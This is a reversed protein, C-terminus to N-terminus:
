GELLKELEKVESTSLKRVVVTSFLEVGSETSRVESVITKLRKRIASVRRTMDAEVGDGSYTKSPNINLGKEGLLQQILVFDAEVFKHNSDFLYIDDMFRLLVAFNVSRQFTKQHQM